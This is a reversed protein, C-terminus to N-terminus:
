FNPIFLFIQGRCQSNDWRPHIQALPAGGWFRQPQVGPAPSHPSPGAQMFPVVLYGWPGWHARIGNNCGLVLERTVQRWQVPTEESCLGPQTSLGGAAGLAGSLVRLMGSPLPGGREGLVEEEWCLGLWVRPSSQLPQTQRLRGRLSSMEKGLWLYFWAM